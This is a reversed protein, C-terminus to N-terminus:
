ATTPPLAEGSCVILRVSATKEIVHPSDLFLALMSPVFHLVTIKHDDISDLLSDPDKHHEPPLIVLHAGSLVSAFFEWVSVDFTFPTKQLIRDDAGFSYENIM